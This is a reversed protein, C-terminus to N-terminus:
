IVYCFMLHGKINLNHISTIVWIYGVHIDTCQLINNCSMKLKVLTLSPVHDTQIYDTYLFASFPEM